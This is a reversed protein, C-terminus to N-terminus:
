DWFTILRIINSLKPGDCAAIRHIFDDRIHQVCSQLHNKRTYNILSLTSKHFFPHNHMVDKDILIHHLLVLTYYKWSPASHLHIQSFKIIKDM